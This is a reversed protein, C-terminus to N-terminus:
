KLFKGSYHRRSKSNTIRVSYIGKAFNATSIKMSFIGPDFTKQVLLKGESGFIKASLKEKLPNKLLIFVANEAQQYYISFNNEDSENLGLSGTINTVTFATDYRCGDYVMHYVPFYYSYLYQHLPEAATSTTTDGFDWLHQYNLNGPCVFQALLNQNVMYWNFYPFPENLGLNWVLSSDRVTQWAVVQLFAATNVSLGATYNQNIIQKHTITSYITSAALYSGALSPHSNDVDYLNLTSDYQMSLNFAEGVPAVIQQTTDAMLKYSEKLRQQMGAYTCVPPYIACNGADGYKRGWTMYFVTKTCSNNDHILSDLYLAYPITTINVSQPSLSPLQSQQQLVVYDWPQQYIKAITNTDTSHAQFTYGGITYSDVFISDGMAYGLQQVINPLNNVYTYSNGLFLVSIKKSSQQAFASLSLLLFFPTVIKKM